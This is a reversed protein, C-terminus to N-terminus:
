ATAGTAMSQAGAKIAADFADGGLGKRLLAILKEAESETHKEHAVKLDKVARISWATAKGNQSLSTVHLVGTAVGKAIEGGMRRSYDIRYGDHKRRIAAKSLGVCEARLAFDKRPIFSVRQSGNKNTRVALDAVTVVSIENSM